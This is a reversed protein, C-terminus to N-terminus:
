HSMLVPVPTEHLVFRTAGGLAYEYLRSRGYCGMVLLDAGEAKIASMLAAGIDAGPLAIVEAKARVDHRAFIRCLLEPSRAAGDREGKSDSISLIMVHQATQLIPLADFAARTAERTGNWAVLVNTGVAAPLASTRPAVLVPRGAGLILRETMDNQGAQAPGTIILDASHAHDFLLHEARTGTADAEIWEGDAANSALGREFLARMHQTEGRFATRHQDVKVVDAAGPVGAPITIVAPQIALGVLHAQFRTALEIGVSLQSPFRRENCANILITKFPMM